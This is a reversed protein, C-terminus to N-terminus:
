IVRHCVLSRGDVQPTGASTRLRVDVTQGATATVIAHVAVSIWANGPSVTRATLTVPSGNLYITFTQSGTGSRYACEFLVLWKGAGPILQLPTAGGIVVDTLSSSPWAVSQEIIVATGAVLRSDNGQVVVGAIAEGDTALEVVGTSTTTAAAVSLTRDASLDGGGSLPATTSITRATHLLTGSVNPLTLTRPTTPNWELGSTGTANAYYVGKTAGTGDGTFVSTRGRISGVVDLAYGPTATGIGVFGDSPQIVIRDATGLTATGSTATALKVKGDTADVGLAMSASVGRALRLMSDGAGGQILSLMPDTTGTSFSLTLQGSLTGGTLALKEADIQTAYTALDKLWAATTGRTRDETPLDLPFTGPPTAM